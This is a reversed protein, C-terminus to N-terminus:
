RRCWVNRIHYIGNETGGTKEIQWYIKPLKLTKTSPRKVIIIKYNLSRLLLIHKEIYIPTYIM